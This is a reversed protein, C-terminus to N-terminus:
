QLTPSPVKGMASFFAIVHMAWIDTTQSTKQIKIVVTTVELLSYYSIVVIKIFKSWLRVAQFTNKIDHINRCCTWGLLEDLTSVGKKVPGFEEGVM